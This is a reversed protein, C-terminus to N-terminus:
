FGGADKDFTRRPQPEPQPHPKSDPELDLESDLEIDMIPADLPFPQRQELYHSLSVRANRIALSLQEASGGQDEIATPHFVATVAFEIAAKLPMQKEQQLYALTQGIPSDERYTWHIQEGTIKRTEIKIRKM